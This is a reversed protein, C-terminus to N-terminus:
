LFTTQTSIFTFDFYKGAMGASEVKVMVASLRSPSLYRFMRVPWMGLRAAPASNRQTSGIPSWNLLASRTAASFSINFRTSAESLCISSPVEGM